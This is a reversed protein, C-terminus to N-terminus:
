CDQPNTTSFACQSFFPCLCERKNGLRAEQGPPPPEGRQRKASTLSVGDIDAGVGRWLHVDRYAHGGVIRSREQVKLFLKRLLEDVLAHIRRGETNGVRSHRDVRAIKITPIHVAMVPILCRVVRKVKRCVLFELLWEALRTSGRHRRAIIIDGVVNVLRRVFEGISRTKSEVIVNIHILGALVQRKYM